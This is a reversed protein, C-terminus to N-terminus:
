YELEQGTEIIVKLAANEKKLETIRARLATVYEAVSYDEPIVATDNEMTLVSEELEAVRARLRAVEDLWESVDQRVIDNGWDNILLKSKM